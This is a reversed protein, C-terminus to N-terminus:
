LKAVLQPRKVPQSSNDGISITISNIGVAGIEMVMARNAETARNAVVMTERSSDTDKGTAGNSNNSSDGAMSVAVAGVEKLSLSVARGAEM